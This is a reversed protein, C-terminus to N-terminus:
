DKGWPNINCGIGGCGSGVQQPCVYAHSSSRLQYNGNLMFETTIERERERETERDRDRQRERERKISGESIGFSGVSGGTLPNGITHFSRRWSDKGLIPRMGLDKTQSKMKIKQGVENWLSQNPRRSIQPGRCCESTTKNFNSWM